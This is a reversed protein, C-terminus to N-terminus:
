YTEATSLALYTLRDRVFRAEIYQSVTYYDYNRHFEEESMRPSSQRMQALQEAATRKQFKFDYILKDNSRANPKGLIETVQKKSMGLRLGSATALRSTLSTSVVCSDSGSWQPGGRFLYALFDVEGEEFILHIDGSPSVYCIQSRGTSADGRQIEHAMGFRKEITELPEGLSVDAIRFNTAAAQTESPSVSGLYNNERLLSWWDSNDPVWAPGQGDSVGICVFLFAAAVWFRNPL